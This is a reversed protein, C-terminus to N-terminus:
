RLRIERLFSTGSAWSEACSFEVVLLLVTAPDSIYPQTMCLAATLQGLSDRVALGVGMIKKKKDVAADWKLKLRGSRCKLIRHKMQV